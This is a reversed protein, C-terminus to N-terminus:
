NMENLISEIMPKVKIEIEASDNIKEYRFGNVDFPPASDKEPPAFYFLMRGTEIHKLAYGVEIMVNHRCGTLDAIFIDCEKIENYMVSRIDFTGGEQTGLDVLELNLGEVVSKLANLRHLADQYNEDASAPYWRAL